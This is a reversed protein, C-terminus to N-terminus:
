AKNKLDRQTIKTHKKDNSHSVDIRTGKKYFLSEFNAPQVFHLRRTMINVHVKNINEQFGPIRPRKNTGMAFLLYNPHM